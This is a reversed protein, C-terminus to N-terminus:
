IAVDAKALNEATEQDLIERYVVFSYAYLFIGSLGIFVTSLVSTWSNTYMKAANALEELSTPVGGHLLVFALFFGVGVAFIILYTVATVALIKPYKKLGKGFILSFAQGFTRDSLAPLLLAFFSCLAVGGILATGLPLLTSLMPILENGGLSDTPASLVASLSAVMFVMSITVVIIALVMIIAFRIAEFVVPKWWHKKLGRVYWGRESEVEHIGDHLLEVVAPMLLFLSLGELLLRLMQIGFFGLMATPDSALASTDPSTVLMQFLGSVLLTPLYLLLVTPKRNLLAFTRSVSSKM